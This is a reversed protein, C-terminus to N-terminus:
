RFDIQRGLDQFVICQVVNFVRFLWRFPGTVFEPLLPARLVTLVRDDSRYRGATGAASNESDIQLSRDSRTPRRSGRIRQLGIEISSDIKSRRLKLRVLWASFFLKSRWSNEGRCFVIHSCCWANRRLRLQYRQLPGICSVIASLHM